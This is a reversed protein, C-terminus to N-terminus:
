NGDGRSRSPTLESARGFRVTIRSGRLVQTGAEPSQEVAIGSGILSPSLGMRSCEETVGRVTLGALDPMAVAEEDAFAVTPAAVLVPQNTKAVDAFRAENADENGAPGATRMNKATEINSPMPVDHPVDLYALTQEAVRKFVPGGVDGGFHEGVPSDLVV